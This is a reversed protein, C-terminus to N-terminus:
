TGPSCALAHGYLAELLPRVEHVVGVALNGIRCVVPVIIQIQLPNQWVEDSGIADICSPPSRIHGDGNILLLRVQHNFACLRSKSQFRVDTTCIQILRDNITFVAFGMIGNDRHGIALSGVVLFQQGDASERQLGLFM